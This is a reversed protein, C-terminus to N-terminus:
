VMYAHNKLCCAKKLLTKCASVKSAMLQAARPRSVVQHETSLVLNHTDVAPSARVQLFTRTVLAPFMLGLLMRGCADAPVTAQSVANSATFALM